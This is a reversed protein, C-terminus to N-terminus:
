PREAHELPLSFGFAVTEEPVPKERMYRTVNSFGLLQRDRVLAKLSAAAISIGDRIRGPRGSPGSGDPVPVQVIDQRSILVSTTTHMIPSKPCLGLWSEFSETHGTM